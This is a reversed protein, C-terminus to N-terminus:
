LWSEITLPNKEGKVPCPLCNLISKTTSSYSSRPPIKWCSGVDEPCAVDGLFNDVEADVFRPFVVRVVWSYCLFCCRFCPAMPYPNLTRTNGLRRHEKYKTLPLSHCPLLSRSRGIFDLKLQCDVDLSRRQRIICMIKMCRIITIIKLTDRNRKRIGRALM